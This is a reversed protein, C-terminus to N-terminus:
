LNEGWVVQSPEVLASDVQVGVQEQQRKAWARLLVLERHSERQDEHHLVHVQPLCGHDLEDRLVM